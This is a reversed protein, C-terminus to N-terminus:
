EKRHPKVGHITVRHVEYGVGAQLPDYMALDRKRGAIRQADADTELVGVVFPRDGMSWNTRVVLYADIAWTGSISARTFVQGGKEAGPAAEPM